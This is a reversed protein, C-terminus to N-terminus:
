FVSASQIDIKCCLPCIVNQISQFTHNAATHFFSLPVIATLTLSSLPLVNDAFIIFFSSYFCFFYTTSHTSFPFHLNPCTLITDRTTCHPFTNELVFWYPFSMPALQFCFDTLWNCIPVTSISACRRCVKGIQGRRSQRERTMMPVPSVPGSPRSVPM